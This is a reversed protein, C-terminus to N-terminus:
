RPHKQSSQAWPGKQSESQILSKFLLNINRKKKLHIFFTDSTIHSDLVSYFISISLYNYSSSALVYCITFHSCYFIPYLIIASQSLPYGNNNM